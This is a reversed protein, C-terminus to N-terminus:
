PRRGTSDDTGLAVCGVIHNRNLIWRCDEVVALVNNVGGRDVGRAVISHFVQVEGIPALGAGRRRIEHIVCGAERAIVGRWLQKVESRLALPVQNELAALRLVGGVAVGGLRLAPASRLIKERRLGRAHAGPDIEPYDAIGGINIKEEATVISVEVAARSGYCVKRVTEISGNDDVRIGFEIEKLGIIDIVDLLGACIQCVDLADAAVPVAKEAGQGCGGEAACPRREAIRCAEIRWKQPRV